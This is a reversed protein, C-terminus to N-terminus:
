PRKMDDGPGSVEVKGLAKFMGHEERNREENGNKDAESLEEANGPTQLSTLSL